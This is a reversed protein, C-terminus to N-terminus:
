ASVVDLRELRDQPEHLSREAWQRVEEEQSFLIVQRERSIAHLLQLVGAKRLDDCQVTIDDLILPCTEGPKALHRALAMRLLLYVQEATGHSLWAANRWAGRAGCVTVALSQPDVRVDRYRHATVVPLWPRITDALVRAIDRHARMQAQALFERTLTLTQDLQRV